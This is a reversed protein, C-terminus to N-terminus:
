MHLAEVVAAIDPRNLPNGQWCWQILNWYRDEMWRYNERIPRSGRHVSILVKADRLIHNYPKGGPRWVKSESDAHFLQSTLYIM